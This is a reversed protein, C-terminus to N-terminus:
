YSVWGEAVGVWVGLTLVLTYFGADAEEERWGICGCLRERQARDWAGIRVGKATLTALWPRRMGSEALCLVFRSKGSGDTANAPPNGGTTSGAPSSGASSSANKPLRREWELAISTHHHESTPRMEFRYRSGDPARSATWTTGDLPFTIEEKEKEKEKGNERESETEGPLPQKSKRKNKSKKKQNQNESQNPGRHLVSVIVEPDRRAIGPANTAEPDRKKGKTNPKTSLSRSLSRSLKSRGASKRKNSGSQFSLGSFGENQALYLDQGRVKRGTPLVPKSLRAPRFLDLVPILALSNATTTPHSLQQLQLLRRPSLRLRHTTQSKPPPPHALPFTQTTQFQNLPLAARVANLGTWKELLGEVESEEREERERGKGKGKGEALEILRGNTASMGVLTWPIIGVTLVAAAGYLMGAGGRVLPALRSGGRVAWSLYGLAVATVAAIPPNQAKGREYMARWIQAATTPTISGSRTTELVAPVSCVSYTSINGVAQAIHFAPPYVTM